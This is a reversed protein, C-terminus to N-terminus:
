KVWVMKCSTSYVIHVFVHIYLMCPVRSNHCLNNLVSKKMYICFKTFVNYDATTMLESFQYFNPRCYFFKPLNKKRQLEFVNCELIYYYEDGIQGRSCVHCTRELKPISCWRWTEILLHYNATRFKIFITRFIKPLLNLFKEPGFETEFINYVHVATNPRQIIREHWKAM